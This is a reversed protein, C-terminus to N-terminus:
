RVVIEQGVQLASPNVSPNLRELEKVSTEFQTAISSLTDGTKVTWKVHQGGNGASPPTTATTDTSPTTATTSPTTSTTASTSTTAGTTATSGTTTTTTTTKKTTKTKKPPPPPLQATTEPPPATQPVTLTQVPGSPPTSPPPGGDATHGLVGTASLIITIVTVAGLLAAPAIYIWPSRQASPSRRRRRPTRSSM